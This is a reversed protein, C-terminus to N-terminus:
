FTDRRRRLAKFAARAPDDEGSPWLESLRGRLAKQLAPDNTRHFPNVRREDGLTQLWPARRPNGAYFAEAQARREAALNNEPEVELCFDYNRLAYDHGPYFMTDDPLQTIRQSFTEYLSDPEGGARCHGTGGVFLVDGSILHGPHYLAIHGTTHGPTHLVRWQTDGIRLTDGDGVRDDAPVDLFDPHRSAVVACGLSSAVEDNGATHDPHAHTVFIRVNTAGSRRAFDIARGADIPDVLVLDSQARIAYFWNDTISSAIPTITLTM